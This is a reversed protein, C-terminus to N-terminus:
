REDGEGHLKDRQQRGELKNLNTKAIDSLSIDLYTSINAIYWLVDGLEKKIADTDEPSAVGGKDRIIKKIKDATEGAEGTLGLVKEIFAAKSLDNNKDVEGDQVFLDYKLARKQYENFEM